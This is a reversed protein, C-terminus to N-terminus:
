EMAAGHDIAPPKSPKRLVLILPVVAFSMIMLLKFDDMYAIITSQLTITNDLSAAGAATMPDLGTAAKTHIAPNFPTICRAMDAHNRQINEVLLASVM